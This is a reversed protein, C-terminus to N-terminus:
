LAYLRLQNYGQFQEKLEELSVEEFPSNKFYEPKDKNIEAGMSYPRHMIKIPNREIIVAMHTIWPHKLIASLKPEEFAILSAEDLSEVEFMNELFKYAEFPQVCYEWKILGVLFLGTGICNLPIANGKNLLNIRDRLTRNSM